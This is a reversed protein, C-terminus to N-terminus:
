SDFLTQLSFKDLLKRTSATIDLNRLDNSSFWKVDMVETNGKLEGSIPTASFDIIIYHYRVNGKEDHIINDVVDVIDEVEIKLGVEEEIERGVADRVTEGLEIMGGPISWKGQNPEYRRKVLLIHDGKKILAGVAALPQTPYERKTM